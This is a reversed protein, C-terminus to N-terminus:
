FGKLQPNKCYAMDAKLEQANERASASADSARADRDDESLPTGTKPQKPDPFLAVALSSASGARVDQVFCLKRYSHEGRKGAAPRRTACGQADLHRLQIGILIVSVSIGAYKMFSHFIGGPYKDEMSASSYVKFLPDALYALIKCGGTWLGGLLWVRM